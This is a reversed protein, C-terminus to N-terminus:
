KYVETKLGQFVVEAACKPCGYVRRGDYEARFFMIKGCGPCKIPKM